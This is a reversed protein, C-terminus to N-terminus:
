KSDKLYDAAMLIWVYHTMEIINYSRSNVWFNIQGFKKLPNYKDFGTFTILKLKRKKCFQAANVMNKSKGSSSFLVVLDNKDAYFNLAEKLWNEYGYDNAFCTILDAENFNISRIKCNKTFDVSSHSSIAASGGNGAFIIKNKNKKIKLLIRILKSFNKDSINVLSKDLAKIYNNIFHKM